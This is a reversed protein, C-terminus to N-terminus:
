ITWVNQFYSRRLVDRIEEQNYPKLVYYDARLRLAERAYEEYGTVFVLVLDPYLERLEKGFALGNMEPMEIDTFVVEVPHEKLYEYAELPNKFTAAIEVGKLGECEMEFQKIQLWEDDVIVIKM